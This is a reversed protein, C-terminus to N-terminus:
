RRMLRITFRTGDNVVVTGTLRTGNAELAGDVKVPYDSDAVAPITCSTADCQCVTPSPDCSCPPPQDCLLQKVCDVPAEQSTTEDIAQCNQGGSSIPDSLPAPRPACGYYPVEMPATRCNQCHPTQMSCWGAFLDHFDAGLRIRQTEVRAGYVPYDFGPRLQALIANGNFTWGETPYGVDPNTPPPLTASDGVQLSGHGDSDLTLRVRDSGDRFTFAEAYGDWRAAYDSVLQGTGDIDVQSNDACTISTAGAAAVMTLVFMKM